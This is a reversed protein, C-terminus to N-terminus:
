VQSREWAMAVIAALIMQMAVITAVCGTWGAANWAFGTFFAGASGGIYFISAYLGVASSRGEKVITIVYSTSTAQCLLGCAACLALGAIIVGAPPALLLLAGGVWVAIVGLMFRRRGFLSVARGIWPVLLSGALYTVFIAGLLTPSFLYPPAALHFNVYTFVATFNFLVGFGVAYVALLRPNMLHALMQRSSAFIGQSRVFHRERPLMIAVAIAVALTLLANAAFGDRWGLFDTVLGPIFRGCFGGLSSGATYLGAIRTVESPPWEDGIYAVTVTFIPPVLLGQVFRWFVLQPVSTAQTLMLTPVVIAFMAAIILRKRGLVDALAGTFPATLAIATTAATILASIEGASVDFERALEPLLAQPSYLNLFTAFGATPVALTRPEFAM